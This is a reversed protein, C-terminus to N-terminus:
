QISTKIDFRYFDENNDDTVVVETTSMIYYNNDRKAIFVDGEVVEDSPDASLGSEFAAVIAERSTINGFNFLEPQSTDAARLTTGNAGRIKQIWTPDSNSVIGLDVIEASPSNGAVNQGGDLDLGGLATAPGSRNSLLVAEYQNTIPTGAAVDIDFGATEGAIDEVEFRITSSGGENFDIIVDSMDFGTQDDGLLTYPNTDFDVGNFSLRDADVLDGNELVAITSLNSSGPTATINFVNAGLSVERPDSGIYSITPPSSTVTVEVSAEDTNGNADRVTATYTYTAPATPAEVDVIFGFAGTNDGALLAPNAGIDTSTIRDLGVNAGNETITLLDMDADGKSGSINLTINGGPGVEADATILASPPIENNLIPDDGCSTLGFVAAVVLLLFYNSFMTFKKM